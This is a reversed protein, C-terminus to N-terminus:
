DAAGRRESRRHDATQGVNLTLDIQQRAGVAISINKAEAPAFGSAEAEITYVAWMCRHFKMTAPVTQLRSEDCNRYECQHRHRDCNGVVAGSTDRITGVLSGDEYQARAKTGSIAILLGALLFVVRHM